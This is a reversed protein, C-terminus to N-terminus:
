EAYAVSSLYHPYFVAHESVWRSLEGIQSEYSSPIFVNEIEGQVLTKDLVIRSDEKISLSNGCLYRNLLLLLEYKSVSSKPVMNVLGVTKTCACAEVARALELTTLGTWMAKAYGCAQVRQTMFWNLLGIGEPDPDPGVISQRLTIDKSNHLEGAAKTLDYLTDGDPESTESYPGTNGAFVCDTSIQIIRCASKATIAELRHPLLANLRVAQAPNRDCDKNLLGICNVIVDYKEPSVVESIQKTNEADFLITQLGREHLLELVPTKKRYTGTVTNGNELLYACLMHGAMGTSGLILYRM